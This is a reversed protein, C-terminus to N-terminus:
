VSRVEMSKGSDRRTWITLNTLDRDPDERLFFSILYGLGLLLLNALVIIWFRDPFLANLTPWLRAGAESGVFVWVCILLLVTLTAGLAARSGVRRTLFGLLFLGLLGGSLISMILSQLDMLTQTRTFYILLAAGIMIAGFFVSLWRGVTVYHREERNPAFFRRYFDTTVTASSANISSDLTSMAAALLGSIILGALGAPMQTLIFYPFVQEPQLGELASTPFHNYFVYLSTGVFTFYLWVGVTSFGGLIVGTRADRDTKMASYRQVTMQDTSLIQLFLFFYLLTNVWLTKETWSFATSGVSFKDAAQAEVLIQEFGGPLLGAVIPVCLLGGGVLAFGQLVDTWIVAELGGATTYFAVLVGFIVIIWPLSLGSLTEIALSVAYLIVGLRFMQFLIFGAAAYLRAWRGFRHELYEYASRFRGARFFPMFLFLAAGNAILYTMHGPIYRWDQQYAFGPMALFTMSSIITAMLSIGVVWGPMSRNALFYADSSQSKRSTYIGIAILAGLNLLIVLLDASRLQDFM